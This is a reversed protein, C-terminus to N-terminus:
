GMIIGTGATSGLRSPERIWTQMGALWGPIILTKQTGAAAKSVMGKTRVRHVPIRYM